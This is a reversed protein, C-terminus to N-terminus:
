LLWLEPHDIHSESMLDLPIVDSDSIGADIVCCGYTSKSSSWVFIPLSTRLNIGPESPTFKLLLLESIAEVPRWNWYESKLGFEYASRLWSSSLIGAKTADKTLRYLIEIRVAHTPSCESIVDDIKGWIKFSGYVLDCRTLLMSGGRLKQPRSIRTEGVKESNHSFNRWWTAAHGVWTTVKLHVSGHIFDMVYNRFTGKGGHAHLCSPLVYLFSLFEYVPQHTQTTM